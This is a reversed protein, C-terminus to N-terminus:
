LRPPREERRRALRLAQREAGEDFLQREEDTECILPPVVAPQGGEDLAVYVFYATNTHTVHGSMLDEATVLIRTELSTRGVWTVEAAVTLLNGINVASHFSMSDVAVTVVPRRAHKMAAFAGAEDCIKMIIGGHVNGLVNAMDVGMPQTFIIRSENVRRGEM